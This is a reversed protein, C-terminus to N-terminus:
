DSPLAKAINIWKILGTHTAIQENERSEAMFDEAIEWHKNIKQIEHSQKHSIGPPLSSRGKASTAEHGETLPELLAGLEAEAALVEEAKNQAEGLVEKRKEVLGIDDLARLKARYATIERRRIVIFDRLKEIRAPLEPKEIKILDSM